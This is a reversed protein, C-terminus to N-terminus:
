VMRFNGRSRSYRFDVSDKEPDAQQVEVHSPSVFRKKTLMSNLSERAPLILRYPSFSLYSTLERNASQEAM